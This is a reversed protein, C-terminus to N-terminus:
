TELEDPVGSAPGVARAPLASHESGPGDLAPEPPPGDRRARARDLLANIREAREVDSIVRENTNTTISTPQNLLLQYRDFTIGLAAAVDKLSAGELKDPMVQILQFILQEFRSRLEAKADNVKDWIDPHIFTRGDSWERLTAQNIGTARAVLNFDDQTAKLMALAEIKDQDTYVRRRRDGPYHINHRYSFPGTTDQADEDSLLEAEDM